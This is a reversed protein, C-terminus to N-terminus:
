KEGLKINQQIMEMIEKLDVVDMNNKEALKWKISESDGLTIIVVQTAPLFNDINYVPFDKTVNKNRDVIFDIVIGANELVRILRRGLKGYGYIAVHYIKRSRFFYVINKDGSEMWNCATYFVDDLYMIKRKAEIYLEMLNQDIRYNIEIKKVQKDLVELLTEGINKESYFSLMLKELNEGLKRNQIRGNAFAEMLKEKINEKADNKLDFPYFLEEPFDEAMSIKPIIVPTHYSFAMMMAGSNLSSEGIYPLVMVDIADLYSGMDMNFIYENRLIVNTSKKACEVLKEYYLADEAYGVILLVSDSISLERFAEILLEINKYAKLTGIFGFVFQTKGIKHKERIDGGYRYYKGCYNMHPVYFVKKEVGPLVKKLYAFSGRTHTLITDSIKMLFYMIHEKEGASISDHPFKNHFVWIIHIKNKKAEELIMKDNAGFVNEIWNLYIVSIYEIGFTGIKLDDYDLLEFRERLINRISVIYENNCSRFPYFAMKEKM